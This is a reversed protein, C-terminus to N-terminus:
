NLKKTKNDLEDLRGLIKILKKEQERQLYAGYIKLIFGFVYFLVVFSFPIEM